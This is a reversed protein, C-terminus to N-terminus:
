IFLARCHALCNSAGISGPFCQVAAIKQISVQTQYGSTVPSNAGVRTFVRLTCCYANIQIAVTDQSHSILLWRFPLISYRPIYVEKAKNIQQTYTCVWVWADGHWLRSTATLPCSVPILTRRGGKHLKPSPRLHGPKAASTKVQQAM